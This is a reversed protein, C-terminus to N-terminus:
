QTAWAMESHRIRFSTMLVLLLSENMEDQSLKHKIFLIIKGKSRVHRSTVVDISCKIFYEVHKFAPSIGNLEFTM